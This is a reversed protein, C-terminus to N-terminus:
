TTSRVVKVIYDQVAVTGPAVIL